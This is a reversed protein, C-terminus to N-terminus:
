PTPLNDLHEIAADLLADEAFLTEITVPVRVTPVVGKGEIHIDGNMDVARGSTFQFVVQEPMWFQAISGGLGATPYHGMVTARDQLSLDYAFFECASSCDPGVIVVVPGDYRLDAPPLYFQEVTRPDFYFDDLERNYQGSNGLELSENFFYAAMQDALFGSGGSNYRLDIIVGPSQEQNLTTLLREWLQITLLDNDFFSDIQVYVYGSELLRYNVPIEFGTTPAKNYTLSGRETIATMEADTPITSNPAAYTVTVETGIQFRTAYHLQQLRRAHDSSFPGNWPVVADIYDAIPLGNIALITDGLSIGATAAPSSPALHAVVVRGNDLEALAIGLGGETLLRVDSSLLPGQVHGDPIAFALDRLTRLFDIRNNQAEADVIRPRFEAALADWDIDKYTTFAYERRLKQIMADFADTYSLNSFDELAAFDPEILDITPRRSREFTFPSADLDVVTYGLPLTVIPDDETFLLKDSGFDTPFGQNPVPAYVLLKGGVVERRRSAEETVRTSAYATSWGGGYLDREELFPDGFKNTWYAVAFVMVGPEEQDDQDVDRLTGQPEIPLALSYTFPSELFSSTIQGLTQSEQPIIFGPNRDVFGAQDELVILPAAVGITFFPNTYVVEGSLLVTGGEDNIIPAPAVQGQPTRQPTSPVSQAQMRHSLTFVNLAILVLLLIISRQWFHHPATRTFYNKLLFIM